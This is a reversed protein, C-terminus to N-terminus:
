GRDHAAEWKKRRPPPPPVYWDRPNDHSPLSGDPRRWPGSALWVVYMRRAKARVQGLFMKATPSGARSLALACLAHLEVADSLSARVRFSFRAVAWTMRLYGRM